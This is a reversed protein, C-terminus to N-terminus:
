STRLRAFCILCAFFILNLLLYERDHGVWGYCPNQEDKCRPDGGVFMFYDVDSDSKPTNRYNVTGAGNLNLMENIRYTMPGELKCPSKEKFPEGDEINIFIV